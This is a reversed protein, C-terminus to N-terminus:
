LELGKCEESSLGVAWHILHVNLKDLDAWDLYDTHENSARLMKIFLDVVEEDSVRDVTSIIRLKAGEADVQTQEVEPVQELYFSLDDTLNKRAAESLRQIRLHLKPDNLIKLRPIKRLLDFEGIFNSADYGYKRQMYGSFFLSKMNRQIEYILNNTSRLAFIRISDALDAKRQGAIHSLLKYEMSVDNPIDRVVAALREDIAVQSLETIWAKPDEISSLDGGRAVLSLMEFHILQEIQEASANRFMSRLWRAVAKGYNEVTVYIVIKNRGADKFKALVNPFEDEVFTADDAYKGYLVPGIATREDYNEAMEQSALYFAHKDVKLQDVELYIRRFLHYM